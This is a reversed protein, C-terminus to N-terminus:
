FSGFVEGLHVYSTPIVIDADLFFILPLSREDSRIAEIFWQNHEKTLAVLERGVKWAKMSEVKLSMIVSPHSIM